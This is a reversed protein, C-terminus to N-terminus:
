GIKASDSATLTALIARFDPSERERRAILSQYNRQLDGVLTSFADGQGLALIQLIAMLVSTIATLSAYPGISASPAFVKIEAIRAVPSAYSGFIGITRAGREKAVQLAAAVESSDSSSVVGIAVDGREVQILGFAQDTMETSIYDAWTGMHRLAAVFAQAAHSGYGASFVIVRRASQVAAVVADITEPPLAWAQQLNEGDRQLSRQWLASPSTDGELPATTVKLDDALPVTTVKLESKVQIQVDRILEPYGSFTLRQACRVVTTTDVDVAEGLEAATM